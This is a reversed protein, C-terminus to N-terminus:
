RRDNRGQLSRVQDDVRRLPHLAQSPAVSACSILPPSAFLSGALRFLMGASVRRVSVFICRNLMNMVKEPALTGSIDTFGVIDSFFITVSRPSSSSFAPFFSCATLRRVPERPNKELVATRPFFFTPPGQGVWVRM